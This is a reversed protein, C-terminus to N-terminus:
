HVSSPPSNGSDGPHPPTELDAIAADIDQATQDLGAKMEGVLTLLTATNRSLRDLRADLADMREEMRRGLRELAEMMRSDHNSM